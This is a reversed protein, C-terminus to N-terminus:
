GNRPFAELSFDLGPESLERRHNNNRDDFCRFNVLVRDYRYPNGKPIIQFLNTGQIKEVSRIIREDSSVSPNGNANLYVSSWNLYYSIKVYVIKNSEHSSASTGGYGRVCSLLNQQDKAGYSIAESGVHAVGSNPMAGTWNVPVTTAAATLNGRLNAVPVTVDLRDGSSQVAFREAGCIGATIRDLGHRARAQIDMQASGDRFVRSFVIFLSAIGGAIIVSATMAMLLETITFGRGRGQPRM